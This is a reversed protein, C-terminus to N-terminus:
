KNKKKLKVVGVKLSPGKVKPNMNEVTAQVKSELLSLDSVWQVKEGDICVAYTGTVKTFDGPETYGLFINAGKDHNIATLQHLIINNARTEINSPKKQRDLKKIYIWEGNDTILKFRLRTAKRCYSSYNRIFEGRIFGSMAIAPLKNDQSEPEIQEFIVKHLRKLGKEVFDNFELLLQKNTEEFQNQEPTKRKEFSALDFLLSVKTNM